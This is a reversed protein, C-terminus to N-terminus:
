KLRLAARLRANVRMQCVKTDAMLCEIEDGDFDITM